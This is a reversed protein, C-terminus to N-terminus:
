PTLMDLLLKKVRQSNLPSHKEGGLLKQWMILSWFSTCSIHAAALPDKIGLEPHLRFYKQGMEMAKLLVTRMYLDALEPFRRSEGIVVSILRLYEDDQFLSLIRTSLKDLFEELTLKQLKQEIVTLEAGAKKLVVEEIVAKFLQKKDAFHSYITAKIVDAEEAVQNMSTAAYGNELFTKVAAQVIVDRKSRPRGVVLTVGSIKKQSRTLQPKAAVRKKKKSIM